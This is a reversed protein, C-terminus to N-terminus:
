AEEKKFILASAGILLISAIINILIAYKMTSFDNDYIIKLIAKNSWMIPSAKSIADITKSGFQDIPFYGGGLFVFVPIILSLATSAINNDKIIFTLGAGLTISFLIVSLIVAFVAAISSGWYTKLVYRSFLIVIASQIIVVLICGLIKGILYQYKKVPACMIRDQTKYKRELTVGEMSTNGGYMIILTLMTIAYYDIARPSKDKQLSVDKIFDPKQSSIKSLGKPNVKAIEFVTNYKKSYVNLIAEVLSSDINSYKSNKVLKIKNDSVLVFCSYEANEIKKEASKEDDTKTYTVDTGSKNNVINKEFNESFDSKGQICYLVEVKLNTNNDFASNLAMGLISILLIPFLVMTCMAKKDKLNQKIEKIIISLINM